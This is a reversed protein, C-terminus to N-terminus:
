DVESQKYQEATLHIKKAMDIDCYNGQRKYYGTVAKLRAKYLMGKVTRHASNNFVEQVYPDDITYKDSL